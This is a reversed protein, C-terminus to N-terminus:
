IAGLLERARSIGGKGRALLQAREWPKMLVAKDEAAMRRTFLAFVLSSQAPSLQLDKRLRRMAADDNDMVEASLAHAGHEVVAVWPETATLRGADSWFAATVVPEAV